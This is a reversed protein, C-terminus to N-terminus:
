DDHNPIIKFTNIYYVRVRIVCDFMEKHTHIKQAIYLQGNNSMGMKVLELLYAVYWKYLRDKLAM